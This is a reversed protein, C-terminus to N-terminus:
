SGPDPGPRYPLPHLRRDGVDADIPSRLIAALREPDETVLQHYSPEVEDIFYRWRDAFDSINGGAPLRIWVPELGPSGPILPTPNAPRPLPIEVAYRERYSVGGPVPNDALNTLLETLFPHARHLEDWNDGIIGLQERYALTKSGARIRDPQGSGIDQWANAMIPDDEGDPGLAAVLVAPGGYLFAAHMWAMDDFIEPVMTLLHTELSELDDGLQRQGPLQASPLLISLGDIGRHIPGPLPPLGLLGNVYDIRDADDLLVRGTHLDQWGAYLRRGVLAALGAWALRHDELYLDGYFTYVARINADNHALGQSAEWRDRDFGARHDAVAQWGARDFRPALEAMGAEIPPLGLRAALRDVAGGRGRDLRLRARQRGLAVMRRVDAMTWVPGPLRTDLVPVGPGGQWRDAALVEARLRGVDVAAQRWQGTLHSLHPLARGAPAVVAGGLLAARQAALEGRQTALAAAVSDSVAVFEGLAELDVAVNM